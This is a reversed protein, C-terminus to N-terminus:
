DEECERLKKDIENLTNGIRICTFLDNRKDAKDLQEELEKKTKLLREKDM